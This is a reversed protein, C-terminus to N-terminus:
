LFYSLVTLIASFLFLLAMLIAFWKSGNGPVSPTESPYYPSLPNNSEPDADGM